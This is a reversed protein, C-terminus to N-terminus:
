VERGSEKKEVSELMELEEMEEDTLRGQTLLEALRAKQKTDM